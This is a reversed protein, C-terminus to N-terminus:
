NHHIVMEQALYLEPVREIVVGLVVANKTGHLEVSSESLLSLKLFCNAFLSLRASKMCIMACSPSGHAVGM